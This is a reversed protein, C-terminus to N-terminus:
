RNEKEEGRRRRKDRILKCGRAIGKLEPSSLDEIKPDGLRDGHPAIAHHARGLDFILM